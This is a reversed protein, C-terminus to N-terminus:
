EFTKIFSYDAIELIDKDSSGDGYVYLTYDKRGPYKELLRRVKEPGYCNKGVFHGTLIGDKEELQTALVEIDYQKAWPKIWNELSASIIIIKHGQDKHWSLRKLAEANVIKALREKYALCLCEFKNKSMNSLYFTLMKDKLTSNSILHILYKFVFPSLYLSCFILKTFPFSCYFFDLLTNRKILTNDFDFIALSLNKKNVLEM